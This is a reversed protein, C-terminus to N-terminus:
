AGPENCAIRDFEHAMRRAMQKTLRYGDREEETLQGRVFRDIEDQFARMFEDHLGADKAQQELDALQKSTRFM